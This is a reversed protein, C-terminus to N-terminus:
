TRHRDVLSKCGVPNSKTKAFGIASLSLVCNGLSVTRIQVDVAEDMEEWVGGGWCGSVGAGRVCRHDIRVKTEYADVGDTEKCVAVFAVYSRMSRLFAEDVATGQQKVLTSTKQQGGDVGAERDVSNAGKYKTSLHTMRINAFTTTGSMESADGAAIERLVDHAWSVEYEKHRPNRVKKWKTSNDRRGSSAIESESDNEPKTTKRMNYVIKDIEHRNCQLGNSLDDDREDNGGVEEPDVFSRKASMGEGECTASIGSTGMAGAFKSGERKDMAAELTKLPGVLEGLVLATAITFLERPEVEEKAEAEGTVNYKSREGIASWKCGGGTWLQDTSLIQDEETGASELDKADDWGLSELPTAGEIHERKIGFEAEQVMPAQEGACQVRWGPEETASSNVTSEGVGRSMTDNDGTHTEQLKIGLECRVNEDIGEGSECPGLSEARSTMAAVLERRAEDLEGADVDEQTGEDDQVMPGLGVESSYVTRCGANVAVTADVSMANYDASLKRIRKGDLHSIFMYVPRALPNQPVFITVGHVSPATPVAPEVDGLFDRPPEVVTWQTKMRVHNRGVRELNANVLVYRNRRTVPHRPLCIYLPISVALRPIGDM